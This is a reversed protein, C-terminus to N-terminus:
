ETEEEENVSDEEEQSNLQEEIANLIDDKKTAKGLDIENLKAFDILQKVTM